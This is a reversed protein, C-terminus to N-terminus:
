EYKRNFIESYIFARRAENRTSLKPMSSHEAAPMESKPTQEVVVPQAPRKPKAVPRAEQVSVGENGSKEKAVVMRKILDELSVEEATRVPEEAPAEMQPIVQGPRNADFSEAARKVSSKIFTAVVYIIFVIVISSM